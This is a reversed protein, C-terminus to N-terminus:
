VVAALGPEAAPRRHGGVGAAVGVGRGGGWGAVPRRPQRGSRRSRTPSCPGPQFRFSRATLPDLQLLLATFVSRLTAANRTFARLWGRVTTAPRDVLQETVSASSRATPPFGM